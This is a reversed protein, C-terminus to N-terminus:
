KGGEVTPLSYVDIWFGANIAAAFAVESATLAMDANPSDTEHVIVLSKIWEVPTTALRKQHPILQSILRDLQANEDVPSFNVGGFTWKSHQHTRPKKNAIYPDDENWTETPDLGLHDTVSSHRDFGTILLYVRSRLSGSPRDM